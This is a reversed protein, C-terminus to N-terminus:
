LDVFVTVQPLNVMNNVQQTCVKNPGSPPGLRKVRQARGIYRAVGYEATPPGDAEENLNAGDCLVTDWDVPVGAREVFPVVQWIRDVTPGDKGLADKSTGNFDLAYVERAFQAFVKVQKYLLWLKDGDNMTNSWINFTDAEGRVTSNIMREEGTNRSEGTCNLVVGHPVYKDALQAASMGASGNKAWLCSLKALFFNLTPLNFMTDLKAHDFTRPAAAELFVLQGKQIYKEAGSQFRRILNSRPVSHNTLKGITQNVVRRPVFSGAEFPGPRVAAGGSLSAQGATGPTTGVHLDSSGHNSGMHLAQNHAM